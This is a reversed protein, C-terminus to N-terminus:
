RYIEVGENETRERFKEMLMKTVKGPKGNGVTRGDIYTVPAIEAATGTVFIEDASYLDFLGINAERFPIELENILEIVVQRTIGKLNNLTPPTTITGNKVIFINDGSGESIYGNHDLFIAEDGGKANAEIKALINNLYNLSKINPPLSDIANRRIAVTIAKLGKEYLDGYLKGWPKTIIIVNPSPCKRPDLGLDGAGRTVIPRIYADRLNNRRLTELIAEAFEEKSLPIKLDIVRACDYLRDIHEYLKFVKGNYARIGEFVGDGYLFGHDFVSVKAQSEPVFEGNMYVLLESM